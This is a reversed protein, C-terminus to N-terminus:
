PISAAMLVAPTPGEAWWWWGPWLGRGPLALPPAQGAGLQLPVLAAALGVLM